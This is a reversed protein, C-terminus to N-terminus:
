LEVLGGDMRPKAINPKPTPIIIIGFKRFSSLISFFILHLHFPFEMVIDRSKKM